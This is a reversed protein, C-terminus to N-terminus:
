YLGVCGLWWNVIMLVTCVVRQWDRETTSPTPHIPGGRHHQTSCAAAESSVTNVLWDRYLTSVCLGVGDRACLRLAVSELFSRRAFVGM